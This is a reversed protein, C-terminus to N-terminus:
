GPVLLGVFAGTQLVAMGAVAAYAWGGLNGVVDALVRALATPDLVGTAVGTLVAALLFPAALRKFTTHM